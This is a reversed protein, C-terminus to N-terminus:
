LALDDFSGDDDTLLVPTLGSVTFRLPHQARLPASSFLEWPPRRPNPTPRGTEQTRVNRPMRVSGLRTAHLIGSQYGTGANPIGARSSGLGLRPQTGSGWTPAGRRGPTCWEPGRLGLRPQPIEPQGADDGDRIVCGRNPNILLVAPVWPLRQAGVRPQPVAAGIPCFAPSRSVAAGVAGPVVAAVAEPKRPLDNWLDRVYQGGCRRVAGSGGEPGRRVRTARLVPCALRWVM